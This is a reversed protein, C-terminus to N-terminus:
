RTSFQQGVKIFTPGLKVLGERLWVALEKKRSSVLDKTMGVKGYTWKQNLLFFKWGFSFAFSWIEMTRQM